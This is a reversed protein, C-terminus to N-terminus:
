TKSKKPASRKSVSNEGSLGLAKDIQRQQGRRQIKKAGEGFRKEGKQASQRVNKAFDSMKERGTVVGIGSRVAGSAAGYSYGGARSAAGVAPDTILKQRAYQFGRVPVGSTTVLGESIEKALDQAFDAMMTMMALMLIITVIVIMNLDVVARTSFLSPYGTGDPSLMWWHLKYDIIPIRLIQIYCVEQNAAFIVAVLEFIILHFLGVYAFVFIPQLSFNLLLKLWQDFFSKTQSLILLMFYIPAIGYLLFRGIMAIAYVYIAKSVAYMYFALFFLLLLVYFMGLLSSGMLAIVTGYFRMNFFMGFARDVVVFVDSPNGGSIDSGFAQGMIVSLSGVIDEVFQMVWLSFFDWNTVLQVIIIMKITLWLINYPHFKEAGTAIMIAYFMVVLTLLAGLIKLIGPDTSLARFINEVSQELIGQLFTMIFAVPGQDIAPTPPPTAPPPGSSAPPAAYLPDNPIQLADRLPMCVRPPNAQPANPMDAREKMVAPTYDCATAMFLVCILVFFAVIRNYNLTLV